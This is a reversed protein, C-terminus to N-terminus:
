LAPPSISPDAPDDEPSTSPTSPEVIIPTNDTYASLSRQLQSLWAIAKPIDHDLYSRLSEIKKLSPDIAADFNRSWAKVQQIKEEAEKVSKKAKRVAMEQMTTSARLTSFRASVLEQEAQHMVQTRRKLQTQWHFKQDNTIWQRTRNVEESVQDVSRRAKTLFIILSARFADLTEISRVKAENGTM